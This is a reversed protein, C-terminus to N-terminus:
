TPVEYTTTYTGNSVISAISQVQDDKGCKPCNIISM